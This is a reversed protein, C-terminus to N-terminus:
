YDDQFRVNRYLGRKARAGERKNNDWSKASNALDTIVKEVSDAIAGVYPFAVNSMKTDHKGQNDRWYKNERRLAEIEAGLKETQARIQDATAKSVDTDALFKGEQADMVDMQKATAISNMLNSKPHAGTATNLAQPTSVGNTVALLPNLGAQRLGEVQWTPSNRTLFEQTARNRADAKKALYNSSWTELGTDFLSGGLGGLFSEFSFSM